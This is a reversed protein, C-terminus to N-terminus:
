ERGIIECSTLPLDPDLWPLSDSFLKLNINSILHNGSYTSFPFGLIVSRSRIQLVNCLTRLVSAINVPSSSTNGPKEVGVSQTALWASYADLSQQDFILYGDWEFNYISRLLAMFKPNVEQGPFLEFQSALLADNASDASPYIQMGKLIAQDSAALFLVHIMKLLPVSQNLNDTQILLYTNQQSAVNQLEVSPQVTRPAPRKETFLSASFVGIM